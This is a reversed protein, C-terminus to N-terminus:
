INTFVIALIIIAIIVVATISIFLARQTKNFKMWWDKIKQLIAKLRDQM